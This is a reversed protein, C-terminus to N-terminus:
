ESAGGRAPLDWGCARTHPPFCAADGAPVQWGGLVLPWEDGARRTRSDLPEYYHSDADFPHFDLEM